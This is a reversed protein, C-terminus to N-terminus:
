PRARVEAWSVSFGEAALATLIPERHGTWFYASNGDRSRLLVGSTGPLRGRVPAAEALDVCEVTFREIRFLRTLVAPRVRVTVEGDVLELVALPWTANMRGLGGALVAGGIWRRAVDRSKEPPESSTLVRGTPTTIHRKTAMRRERAFAIANIVLGVGFVVLWLPNGTVAALVTGVGVSLVSGTVFVWAPMTSSKRVELPQRMACDVPGVCRHDRSEHRRRSVGIFAGRGSM